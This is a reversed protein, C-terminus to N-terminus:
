IVSASGVLGPDWGVGARMLLRNEAPIYELAKCLEAQLGDAVRRVTTDLLDPFPTGKLAAVGLDSLIEQQQIRLNLARQTLEPLGDAQPPQEVVPGAPSAM